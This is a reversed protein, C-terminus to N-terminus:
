GFPRRFGITIIAGKQSPVVGSRLIAYGLEGFLVGNFGEGEVGYFVEGGVTGPKSGTTLAVYNLGAGLYSSPGALWGPPFNMIVDFNVPVYRRGGDRPQVLGTSFRLATTAPGFIFSTPVRVEGLVGAGGAWFGGSLGLEYRFAGRQGDGQKDVAVEETDEEILPATTIEEATPFQTVVVKVSKIVGLKKKLDRSRQELIALRKALAQRTKKNRSKKLQQKVKAIDKNTKALKQRPNLAPSKTKVKVVKKSTKVRSKKTIKALGASAVLLAILLFILLKKM